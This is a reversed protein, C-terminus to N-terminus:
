YHHKSSNFRRPPKHSKYSSDSRPYQTRNTDRRNRAFKNYPNKKLFELKKFIIMECYNKIDTASEYDVFLTPYRIHLWCYLNIIQHFEEYFELSVNEDDIHKSNLLSFPLPFDLFTKTSKEAITNCFHNFTRMLMPTVRVPANSLRLKDKLTLGPMDEFTTLVSIRDSIDSLNFTKLSSKAMDSSFRELLTTLKTGPPYFSLLQEILEDTPWVTACDVYQIPASIGTRVAHLTELDLATVYGVSKETTENSAKYRGARGGIQKINSFTLPRVEVGNFKYGTTFIVRQISLNLGMGIADSAVLVDCEGSNFLKAQKVRTEPPLSGYIVAVKLNTEGEIKLKLDLITKKSFAIVCDGSKLDSFGKTLPQKEVELEGLRKYKNIVLTDGTLKVIRKMLPLVSEEGCLHIESARAGLIVNTWAWGREKDNLMQVEDLVCVDFDQNLPIMEVTGSTLGARNGMFDLDDIVEEGTLLNCRIGEDKFRDYVERALLRLPGAYYGRPCSKLKQLANYTKGSNTPGVHMIIKRKLKRAEPFWESPNSIDLGRDVQSWSPTIQPIIEEQKIFEFYNKLIFYYQEVISYEPKELVSEWVYKPLEDVFLLQNIIDSPNTPKLVSSITLKFNEQDGDDKRDKLQEYIFERLRKWTMEATMVGFDTTSNLLNANILTLANNLNQSFEKNSLYLNKATADFQLPIINTGSNPDQEAEPLHKFKIKNM